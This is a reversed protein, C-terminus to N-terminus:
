EADSRRLVLVPCQASRVVHEAVSGLLLRKFGGYGHSPIVILEANVTAAYEAIVTDPEGDLVVDRVGHYGHQHLFESFHQRVAARRDDDTPLGHGPAGPAIQDLTPVVHLVHVLDPSAALECAKGVADVSMGSFDIPVVITGTIEWAM